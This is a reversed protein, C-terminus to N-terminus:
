NIQNFFVKLKKNKKALKALKLKTGDQSNNDSIVIEYDYNPLSNLTEVVRKYWIEINKEENLCSAIISILKKKM